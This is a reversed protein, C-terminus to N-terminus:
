PLGPAASPRTGLGESWGDQGCALVRPQLELESLGLEREEAESGYLAEGAANLEATAFAPSCLIFLWFVEAHRAGRAKCHNRVQEYNVEWLGGPPGGAQGVEGAGLGPFVM